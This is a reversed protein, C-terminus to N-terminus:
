FSLRCSKVRVERGVLADLSPAPAYSGSPYLHRIHKLVLAGGDAHDVREAGEPLPSRKRLM